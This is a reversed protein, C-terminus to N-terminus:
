NFNFIKKSRLENSWEKTSGKGKWSHPVYTTQSISKLDPRDEGFIFNTKASDKSSIKYDIEKSSYNGQSTTTWPNEFNGFVHHSKQLDYASIIQQPRGTMSPTMFKSHTESKYDPKQNGLVYSHERLQKEITKGDTKASNLSKSKDYFEGQSITKFNPEFNGFIFHSKRLDNKVNSQSSISMSRGQEILKNQENTTTSYQSRYDGLKFNTKTLTESNAQPRDLHSIPHGGFDKGYQSSFNVGSLNFNKKVMM